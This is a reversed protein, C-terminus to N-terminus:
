TPGEGARLARRLSGLQEDERRPISPHLGGFGQQTGRDCLPKEGWLQWPQVQLHGWPQGQGTPYPSRLATLWVPHGFERKVWVPNFHVRKYQGFCPSVTSLTILPNPYLFSLSSLQRGIVRWLHPSGWRGGCLWDAVFANGFAQHPVADEQAGWPEAQTMSGKTPVKKLM